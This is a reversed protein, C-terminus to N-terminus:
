TWNLIGLAANTKDNRWYTWSSFTNRYWQMAIGNGHLVMYIACIIAILIKFKITKLKFNLHMQSRPLFYSGAIKMEFGWLTCYFWLQKCSVKSIMLDGYWNKYPLQRTNIFLSYSNLPVACFRVSFNGCNKWWVQKTALKQIYDMFMLFYDCHMHLFYWM